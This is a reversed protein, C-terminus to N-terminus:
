DLTPVDITTESLVTGTCIFETAGLEKQTGLIAQQMKLNVWTADGNNEICTRDEVIDAQPTWGSYLIDPVECTFAFMLDILDGMDNLESPCVNERSFTNDHIYIGRPTTNYLTDTWTEDALEELIGYDMVGIGMMNNNTITNNFIEVNKTALLMIGTGPPVAGVINNPPAFNKYDNQIINNNYLRCHDGYQSLGPLDFVLLGGTNNIATNNYVDAYKTNEIEIGAVNREATSNRVIVYNSQGVYVGADSAGYAYCGDVLVHDCKVPYLGYAGNNESAEGTWVTGVNLFAIHACDKTKLADGITNQITFNALIINTCNDVKLGEAGTIQDTFDIITEDIGAGMIVIDSKGEVSLTANFSFTGAGLKITDKEDMEILRNQLEVRIAEMDEPTADDAVTFETVTVGDDIVVTDTDMTDIVMTDVDMTDVIMEDDDDPTMEDNDDKCSYLAGIFFLSLLLLLSFNKM